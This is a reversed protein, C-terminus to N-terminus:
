FLTFCLLKKGVYNNGDYVKPACQAGFWKIHTHHFHQHVNSTFRCCNVFGFGSKIYFASMKVIITNYVVLYDKM